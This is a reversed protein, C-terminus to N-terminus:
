QFVNIYDQVKKFEEEFKVDGWLKNVMDNINHKHQEDCFYLMKNESKIMNWTKTPPYLYKQQEINQNFNDYLENINYGYSIRSKCITRITYECLQPKRFYYFIKYLNWLMMGVGPVVDNEDPYSKNQFFLSSNFQVKKLINSFADSFNGNLINLYHEQYFYLDEGKKGFVNATRHIHNELEEILGSAMIEYKSDLVYNWLFDYKKVFIAKDKADRGELQLLINYNSADFSSNSKFDTSIAKYEINEDITDNIIAYLQKGNILELNKDSSFDLAQQTFDSTTIIIGKNARESMVVGYLDRIEPAGVVNNWNKCQIIYKGKYFPRNSYAVIDIGGDGSLATQEAKFGTKNLLETVFEEFEYGNMKSFDIM